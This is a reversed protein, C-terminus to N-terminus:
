IGDSGWEVKKYGKELVGRGHSKQQDAASWEDPIDDPFYKAHFRELVDDDPFCVANTGEDETIGMAALAEQWFKCGESLLGVPERIDAINTYKAPLAGRTTGAHLAREPIAFARAKRRGIAATWSDWRAKAKELAPPPREPRNCLITAAAVQYVVSTGNMKVGTLASWIEKEPVIDQAERIYWAVAVKNKRRLADKLGAAFGFRKSPQTARSLLNMVSDKTNRISVYLRIWDTNPGNLLQPDGLWMVIEEIAALAATEEKSVVLEWLWFLAQDDGEHLCVQLASIVEDMEYLNRTLPM